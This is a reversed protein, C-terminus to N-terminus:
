QNKKILGFEKACKDFLNDYETKYQKLTDLIQKYVEITNKSAKIKDDYDELKRLSTYHNKFRKKAEIFENFLEPKKVELNKNLFYDYTESIISRIEKEILLRELKLKLLVIEKQIINMKQIEEKREMLAIYQKNASEKLNEEDIIKSNM